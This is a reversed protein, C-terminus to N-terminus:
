PSKAIQGDRPMSAHSRTPRARLRFRPIAGHPAGHPLVGPNVITTTIGFPAVEAHLSEMWGELGFKSPRSSRTSWTGALNGRYHARESYESISLIKLRRM